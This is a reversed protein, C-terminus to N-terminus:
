MYIPSWRVVVVWLCANYTAAAPQGDCLQPSGHLFDSLVRLFNGSNSFIQCNPLKPIRIGHLTNIKGYRACAYLIISYLLLISTNTVNLFYKIEIRSTKDMEIGSHTTTKSPGRRAAETGDM